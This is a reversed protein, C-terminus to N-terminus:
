PCQSDVHCCSPILRNRRPNLWARQTTRPLTTAQTTGVVCVCVRWWSIGRMVPGSHKGRCVRDAGGDVDEFIALTPDEQWVYRLDRELCGVNSFFM